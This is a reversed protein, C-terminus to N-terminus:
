GGFPCKVRRGVTIVMAMSYKLPRGPYHRSVETSCLM